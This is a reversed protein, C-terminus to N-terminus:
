KLTVITIAPGGERLDALRFSRAHPHRRLEEHIANRLAGTGHGHIVRVQQMHNLVARDLYRDMEDLAEAVRWGHLDIEQPVAEVVGVSLYRAGSWASQTSDPPATTPKLDKIMADVTLSGISIKARGRDEDLSEIRGDQNGKGVRVWDGVVPEWPRESAAAPAKASRLIKEERAQIHELRREALKQDKRIEERIQALAQRSPLNAIRKEIDSRAKDLLEKYKAELHLDMEAKRKDLDVRQKLFDARDRDAQERATRAKQLERQLSGEKEQLSGLLESLKREEEPMQERAADVVKKPLGEALAITFAESIGPQDMHMMYQPRSTRPDLSYSANRAHPADHAWDKLTPLHTTVLTLAGQQVLEELVARGLAGAQLPDTAKGLEDLLVLAQGACHALIWSIRRIHASFTSLGASVSQEDGIEALVQRFIPLTSDVGAPIPIASQAMLSLLGVTKLATTKGGTNPGTILLVRNEADLKMSLPVSRDRNRFYLLPHHAVMLHLPKDPSLNPRHLAHRHALRARARWLDTQVLTERNSLLAPVHERAHRALEALIQFIIEREHNQEEAVINAPEVAELPEIFLTEGSGSVDHVIGPLRGRSGAKVPLVRRGGRVTWFNDSLIDSHKTLIREIVKDVDKELRRIKARCARLEDSASDRVQGDEDFVRHIEAALPHLPDLLELSRWCVPLREHALKAAKYVEATTQLFGRLRLWDAADLTGGPVGLRAILEECDDFGNLPLDGGTDLLGLVEMVADFHRNITALDTWPCTETIENKAAPSVAMAALYELVAPFELLHFTLPDM